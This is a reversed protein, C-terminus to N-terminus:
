SGHTTSQYLPEGAGTLNQNTPASRLERANNVSLPARWSRHPKSQNPREEAGTLYQITPTSRLERSNNIQERPQLSSKPIQNGPTTLLTPTSKNGHRYLM